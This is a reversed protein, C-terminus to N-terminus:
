DNLTIFPNSNRRRPIPAIKPAKILYLTTSYGSIIPPSGNFTNITLIIPLKMKPIKEIKDNVHFRSGLYEKKIAIPKQPEKVVIDDNASSTLLKNSLLCNTNPIIFM